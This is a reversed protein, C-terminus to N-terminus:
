KEAREHRDVAVAGTRRLISEIDDAVAERARVLVLAAGGDVAERYGRVATAPVGIEALSAGLHDAEQQAAGAGAGALGVAIPGAALVPGVYPIALAALGALLGIAGAGGSAAADATSAEGGTGRAVAADDIAVYRIDSADFNCEILADVAGRVRSGDTFRGIITQM